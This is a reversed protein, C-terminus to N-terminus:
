VFNHMAQPLSLLSITMERIDTCTRWFRKAKLKINSNIDNMIKSGSWKKQMTSQVADASLIDDIISTEAISGYDDHIAEEKSETPSDPKIIIPRRINVPSQPVFINEAILQLELRRLSNNIKHPPSSEFSDNGSLDHHSNLLKTPSSSPSNYKLSIAEDTIDVDSFRSNKPPLEPIPDESDSSCGSSSQNDFSPRRTTPPLNVDINSKICEERIIPRMIAYGNEDVEAIKGFTSFTPAPAYSVDSNSMSIDSHQREIKKGAVGDTGDGKSCEALIEDVSAVNNLDLSNRSSELRVYKGFGQDVDVQWEVQQEIIESVIPELSNVNFWKREKCFKNMMTSRKIKPLSKSKPIEFDDISKRKIPPKIHASSFVNARKATFLEGIIAIPRRIRRNSKRDSQRLQVEHSIGFADSVHVSKLGRDVIIPMSSMDQTINGMEIISHSM